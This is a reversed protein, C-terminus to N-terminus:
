EVGSGDGLIEAAADAARGERIAEAAGVLALFVGMAALLLSSFGGISALVTSWDGPRSTHLVEAYQKLGVRLSAWSADNKGVYFLDAARLEYEDAHGRRRRVTVGVQVAKRQFPELDLQLRMGGERGDGLTIKLRADCKKPDGYPCKPFDTRVLIGGLQNDGAAVDTACLELAASSAGGAPDTVDMVVQALREATLTGARIMYDFAERLEDLSVAGDKPSADIGVSNPNTIDGYLMALWPHYATLNYTKSYTMKVFAFFEQRIVAQWDAVTVCDACTKNWEGLVVKAGEITSSDELLNNLYFNEPYQDAIYTDGYVNGAEVMATSLPSKWKLEAGEVGGDLKGSKDVDLFQFLADVAAATDSVYRQIRTTPAPTNVDTLNLSAHNAFMTKPSVTRSPACPTSKGAYSQSVTLQQKWTWIHRHLMRRTPADPAKAVENGKSVDVNDRDFKEDHHVCTYSRNFGDVSPCPGARPWAFLPDYLPVVQAGPTCAFPRTCMTEITLHMPPLNATPEITFETVEPRRVHKQYELVAFAVVCAYWVLSLTASLTNVSRPDHVPRKFQDFAWTARVIRGSQKIAADYGSLVLPWVNASSDHSSSSSTYLKTAM